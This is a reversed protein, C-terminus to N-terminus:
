EHRQERAAREFGPMIAEFFANRLLNVVVEWTSLDPSRSSGRVKAETAVQDRRNELLESVGGVLGEYLQSPLSQGSDQGRDYVNLDAFFPKIYGEIKGEAIKLETFLSFRGDVVDFDGYAQLLDNMRRMDTNEIRLAMDIQPDRRRAAFTARLESAGSGMFLGKVEIKGPGAEAQSSLDRVTIEADDLSVRYDPDTTQDVYGLTAQRIELLDVTASVTPADALETAAERVQEVRRAEAVATQPSHVYDVVIDDIRARRLHARQIKPAYEVEGLASLIGGSIHLNADVAVPKLKQLPVQALDIKARVAAHPEALYNADGDVRLRGREFVAASLHLPSPYPEGPNRINRINTSVLALRTIKLPRSPDDDIYTLSGDTVRLENIKLPYIAEAAEQWGKEEVDVKDQAEAILQRRDIHLRPAEFSFDAVLRLSLLARWHVGAHLADIVAVPPEPHAQQRIVPDRLTLSFSFPHIDLGPLEVTYGKLRANLDREMRQRIPEELRSAVLLTAAILISLALAM